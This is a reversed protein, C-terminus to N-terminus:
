KVKKRAYISKDETPKLLVCGVISTAILLGGQLLLTNFDLGNAPHVPTVINVARETPPQYFPAYGLSHVVKNDDIYTWPPFLFMLVILAGGAQIVSTQAKSLEM